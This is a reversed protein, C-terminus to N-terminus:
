SRHLAGSIRYGWLSNRYTRVSILTTGRRGNSTCVELHPGLLLDHTSGLIKKKESYRELKGAVRYGLSRSELGRSLYMRCHEGLSLPPM